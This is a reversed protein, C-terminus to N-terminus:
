RGPGGGRAHASDMPRVSRRWMLQTGVLGGTAVVIPGAETNHDRVDHVVRTTCWWLELARRQRADRSQPPGGSDRPLTGRMWGGVALVGGLVMGTPLLSTVKTCFGTLCDADLCTADLRAFACVPPRLLTAVSRTCPHLVGLEFRGGCDCKGTGM